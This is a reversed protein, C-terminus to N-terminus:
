SGTGVANLERGSLSTILTANGSRALKLSVSDEIGNRMSAKNTVTLMLYGDGAFDGGPNKIWGRPSFVVADANGVFPGTLTVPQMSVGRAEDRGGLGFDRTGTSSDVDSGKIEADPPLTDWTTSNIARNGVQMLYAGRNTSDPDDWSADTDTVLLRTERDLRIAEMRLYLVDARLAKAVKMTRYRPVQDRTLGVGIAALIVILGMTVILEIMTFARRM